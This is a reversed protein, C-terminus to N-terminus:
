SLRFGYFLGIVNWDCLASDLSDPHLKECKAHMHLVMSITVPESQNPMSEWWKVETLVKTIWRSKQRRQNIQPDLLKKRIAIDAVAQLFRAVTTSKISQCQITQGKALHLACLAIILNRYDQDTYPLSSQLLVSACWNLYHSQRSQFTGTAKASRPAGKLSNQALQLNDLKAKTAPRLSSTCSPIPLDTSSFRSHNSLRKAFTVDHWCHLEGERPPVPQRARANPEHPPQLFAQNTKQRYRFIYCNQTDM